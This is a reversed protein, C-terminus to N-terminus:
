EPPAEEAESLAAHLEATASDVAAAASLGPTLKGAGGLYGIIEATKVLVFQGRPSQRGHLQLFLAFTAMPAYFGVGRGLVGFGKPKVKVRVNHPSIWLAGEFGKRGKGPTAPVIKLAGMHVDAIDVSSLGWLTDCLHEKAAGKGLATIMEAAFAAFLKAETLEREFGDGPVEIFISVEDMSPYWIELRADPPAM